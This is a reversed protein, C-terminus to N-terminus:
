KTVGELLKRGAALISSEKEIREAPTMPPADPKWFVETEIVGTEDDRRIYFTAVVKSTKADEVDLKYIM